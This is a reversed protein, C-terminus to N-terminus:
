YRLILTAGGPAPAVTGTVPSDDDALATVVLYSTVAGAGLLGSVVWFATSLTAAGRADECYDLTCTPGPDLADGCRVDRGTTVNCEDAHRNQASLVQVGGITAVIAATLSGVGLIAPVLYNPGSDTEAPTVAVTVPAEGAPPADIAPTPDVPADPPAVQGVVPDPASMPAFTVGVRVDRGAHVYGSWRFPEFGQQRVEITRKGTALKTLDSAKAAVGELFLEAGELKGVSSAVYLSVSGPPLERKIGYALAIQHRLEIVSDAGVDFLELNASKVKGSAVEVIVLTGKMQELSGALSVRVVQTASITKAISQLCSNSPDACGTAERLGAFDLAPRPLLKARAPILGAIEERMAADLAGLHTEPLGAAELQLVLVSGQAWAPAAATALALALFAPRYM